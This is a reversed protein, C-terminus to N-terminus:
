SLTGHTEGSSAVAGGLALGLRGASGRRRPVDITSPQAAPAETFQQNLIFELCEGVWGASGASGAAADPCLCGRLGLMIRRCWSHRRAPTHRAQWCASIPAPRPWLIRDGSRCCEPWPECRPWSCTACCPSTALARVRASRRRGGLEVVEHRWGRSVDRWLRSPSSRCPSSQRIWLANGQCFSQYVQRKGTVNCDSNPCAAAPKGSHGVSVM